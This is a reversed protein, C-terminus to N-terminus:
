STSGRPSFDRTLPEKFGSHPCGRGPAGHGHPRHLRDVEGGVAGPVSPRFGGPTGLQWRPPGPRGWRGCRTKGCKESHPCGRGPAGHGHPRHLRGVRGGVAGPVSPRFGGPTGLQWRPPGPRGWRGCRTKGCKESRVRQAAHPGLQVSAGRPPGLECVVSVLLVSAFRSCFDPVHFSNVTQVRQGFARPGLFM